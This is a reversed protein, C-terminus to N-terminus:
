VKSVVFGRFEVTHYPPRTQPPLSLSLALPFLCFPSLYLFLVPPSLPPHASKPHSAVQDLFDVAEQAEAVGREARRVVKERRGPM